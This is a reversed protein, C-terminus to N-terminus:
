IGISAITGSVSLSTYTIGPSFIGDSYLRNTEAGFLSGGTIINYNGKSLTPLSFVASQKKAPAFSFIDTGDSEEIHFIQNVALTSTM